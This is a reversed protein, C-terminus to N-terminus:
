RSVARQCDADQDNQPETGVNRGDINQRGQSDAWGRRERDIRDRRKQNWAAKLQDRFNM